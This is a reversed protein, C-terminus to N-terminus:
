YVEIHAGHIAHLVHESCIRKTKTHRKGSTGTVNASQLCVIKFEQTPSQVSNFM